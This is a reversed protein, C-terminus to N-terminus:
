IRFVQRSVFHLFLNLLTEFAVPIVIRSRNKLNGRILFPNFCIQGIPFIVHSNFYWFLDGYFFHPSHVVSFFHFDHLGFYNDIPLIFAVSEWALFFFVVKSIDLLLLPYEMNGLGALTYRSVFSGSDVPLPINLVPDHRFLIPGNQFSRHDALNRVSM